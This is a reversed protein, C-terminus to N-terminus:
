DMTLQTVVQDVIDNGTSAILNGDGFIYAQKTNLYNNIERISEETYLINVSITDYVVIGNQIVFTYIPPITLDYAIDIPAPRIEIIPEWEIENDELITNLKNWYKDKLLEPYTKFIQLMTDRCVYPDYDYKRAKRIGDSLRSAWLKYNKAWLFRRLEVVKDLVINPTYRVSIPLPLKSLAQKKSPNNLLLRKQLKGNDYRSIFLYYEPEEKNKRQYVNIGCTLGLSNCLGIFEHALTRSKTSYGVFKSVTGDTDILGSLLGWRFGKSTKVWWEPLHKNNALHGINERLINALPRFSWTAKRSFCQRNDFVHPNGKIYPTSTYGYTKLVNTIYNVIDDHVTAIIIDAPRITYNVWGDGIIAGIVYGLEENLTFIANSDKVRRKLNNVPVYDSIDKMYRPVCMGLTAAQRKYNLSKGVTVLSHDNSCLVVNGRNTKVHNIEIGKHISYSTPKVWAKSGNWVVMVEVGDPVEYEEIKSTKKILKGKPFSALDILGYATRVKGKTAMKKEKTNNSVLSTCSCKKNQVKKYVKRAYVLANVSDGDYDAGLNGLRSEHISSSSYYPQDLVPYEYMTMNQMTTGPYTFKITRGKITSKLYVHCPVISGMGTIPYRTICAPYKDRVEYVSIYFLEAYTMPRLKSKDIDEDMDRTDPIVTVQDGTDYVLMFYNGDVKVPSNIIHSSKLKNLINNLGDMSLWEDRKKLNIEILETEMTKPNVLKSNSSNANFVKNLFLSNVKNVVIPLIAKTYQYLGVVGHNMTMINETENLNDIKTPTATLVNRTGNLINRKAWKGEIFGSKGDLLNKLYDFIECTTKQILLRTPNLVTLNDKNVMTNKLMSTFSLLKSYLGNIDDMTPQGKSNVTYDRLGAPIVILKDLLWKPDQFKRVLKVKFAREGEGDQFKIKNYNDLFYSYGTYGDEEEGVQRFDGLKNDFVVKVTSSVIKEYLSSLSILTNYVYPHLVPVVLDIYGPTVSRLKNGVPGFIVSSFLGDKHFETGNTDLIIKSKVEKLIQLHQPTLVLLDINFLSGDMPNTPTAM